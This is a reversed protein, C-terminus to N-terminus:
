TIMFVMETGDGVYIRTKPTAETIIPGCLRSNKDSGRAYPMYMRIYTTVFYLVSSGM